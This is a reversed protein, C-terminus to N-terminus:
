YGIFDGTVCGNVRANVHGHAVANATVKHKKTAPKEVAPMVIALVSVSAVSASPICVAPVSASSICVTSISATPIYVTFISATPDYVIAVPVSGVFLARM